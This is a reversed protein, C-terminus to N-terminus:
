GTEQRINGENRGKGFNSAKALEVTASLSNNPIAASYVKSGLFPLRFADSHGAPEFCFVTAFTSSKVMKTLHPATCLAVSVVDQREGGSKVGTKP